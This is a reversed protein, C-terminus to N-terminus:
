QKEKEEVFYYRGNVNEMHHHKIITNNIIEICGNTISYNYNYHECFMEVDNYYPNDKKTGQVVQWIIIIASIVLMIILVVTILYQAKNNM